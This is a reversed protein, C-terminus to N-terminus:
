QNEGGGGGGDAQTSRKSNAEPGAKERRTLIVDWRRNSEHLDLKGLSFKPEVMRRLRVICTSHVTTLFRMVLACLYFTRQIVHHSPPSVSLGTRQSMKHFLRWSKAIRILLSFCKGFLLKHISWMNTKPVVTAEWLSNETEICTITFNTYIYQLYPVLPKTTVSM